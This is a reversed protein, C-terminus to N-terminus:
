WIKRIEDVIKTMKIEKSGTILVLDDRKIIEKLKEISSEVDEFSFIKNKDMGREFAEKAIFKARQGITFLFDINKGITEGIREHAEITYKGVSLIDGLVAIKKKFGPIKELIKIAEIMSFPTVEETNDIIYSGNIGELLRMKGAPPQYKKLSQSIEVLNLGFTIGVAATALAGYIQEKGFTNELWFPVVSGKYNIKFNTGHNLKIDSVFIEAKESFGFYIKKLRSNDGIERVTEDDYNLVLYNQPPLKKVLEDIQKIEDKEGAFFDKDPPIDTSHTVILIGMQSNKLFFEYNRIKNDESKILLFNKLKVALVDFIMKQVIEKGKGTVIIVPKKSILFKIKEFMRNM